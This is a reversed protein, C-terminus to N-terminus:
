PHSATCGTAPMAKIGKIMKSNRFVWNISCHCRQCQKSACIAACDLALIPFKEIADLRPLCILGSAQISRCPRQNHHDLFCLANIGHDQLVQDEDDTLHLRRSEQSLLIALILQLPGLFAPHVLKIYLLWCM